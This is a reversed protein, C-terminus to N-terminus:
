VKKTFYKKYILFVYFLTENKLFSIAITEEMNIRDCWEKFNDQINTSKVALM